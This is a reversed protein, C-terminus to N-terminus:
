KYFYKRYNLFYGLLKQSKTETKGVNLHWVIRSEISHREEECGCCQLSLLCLNSQPCSETISIKCAVYPKFAISVSLSSSSISQQLLCDILPYWSNLRDSRKLRYLPQEPLNPEQSTCVPCLNILLLRCAIVDLIWYM